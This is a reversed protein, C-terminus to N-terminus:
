RRRRRRKTRRRRSRRRSRRRKTRRKRRTRRRRRRRGGGMYAPASARRPPYKELFNKEGMMFESDCLKRAVESDSYGKASVCRNTAERIREINSKKGDSSGSFLNTLWNGGQQLVPPRGKPLPPLERLERLERLQANEARKRLVDPLIHKKTQERLERAKQIQAKVRREAMLKNVDTTWSKQTTLPKKKTTKKRPPSKTKTKSKKKRSFFKFPM